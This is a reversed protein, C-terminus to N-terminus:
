YESKTNSNGVDWPVLLFNDSEANSNIVCRCRNPFILRWLLSASSDGLHAVVYEISAVMTALFGPYGGFNKSGQTRNALTRANQACRILFCNSSTVIILGVDWLCVVLLLCSSSSSISFSRRLNLGKLIAGSLACRWKSSMSSEGNTPSSMPSSKVNRSLCLFCIAIPYIM